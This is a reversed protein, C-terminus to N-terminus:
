VKPSYGRYVIRAQRQKGRPAFRQKNAQTWNPRVSALPPVHPARTQAPNVAPAPATAGLATAPGTGVSTATVTEHVGPAHPVHWTGVPEGHQGYHRRMWPGNANPAHQRDHQVGPAKHHWESRYGQKLHPHYMRRKKPRTRRMAQPSGPLIEEAVSGLKAAADEHAAAIRLHNAHDVELQKHAIVYRGHASPSLRRGAYAKVFAERREAADLAANRHGEAAAVHDDASWGPFAAHMHKVVDSRQPEVRAYRDNVRGLLATQKYNSDNYVRAALGPVEHGSPTYGLRAQNHDPMGYGSDSGQVYAHLRRLVYSRSRNGPLVTADGVGERVEGSYGIIALRVRGWGSGDM